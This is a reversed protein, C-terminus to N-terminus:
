EKLFEGAVLERARLVSELVQGAYWETSFPSMIYSKLAVIPEGYETERYCDTLSLVVGRGQLAEAQILEFVRRNYANYKLLQDRYRVDSQERDPVSFTDVDDPYVRFLTVPGFNEGNLVHIAPHSELHERLSEAMTVLHGLLARMGDKGFLRLNALAAMPGSGSRTTELTYKGPHYHGSQFLYPTTKEDRTILRLDAADKCLFLSSIYPTFGTKHFDIGISDALQLHRIRRRTGALSRITRRPFELPNTEFKYDNFVSWAWGIVADAHIHPRYDLDFDDVLQERIEYVAQLDDLGFADTTGMTAVIAAIKEGSKLLDRCHTELLCPRIANEPDTPVQVVHDHGLGLWGAVTQCAYHAQTSCVLHAPERVGHTMTGPSCKELGIKAGYLSTGTGGFTFFGGAQEPDYGLLDATMATAELEAMVVGRASEDSCLNPNYISPLLGGIVSPITPSPVVNIQSRPHGWIFMGSLYGVLEQSVEEVTHPAVEIRRQRARDYDLEVPQGLLPKVSKMADLQDLARMFSFVFYSDHMRDSVPKPFANQLENVIDLYSM